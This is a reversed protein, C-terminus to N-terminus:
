MVIFQFKWGTYMALAFALHMSVNILRTRWPNPTNSAFFGLGLGPQMILWPAALTALGFILASLLSPTGGPILKVIFLYLVGYFVGTLYHVCWGITLEHDVEESAAIPSHFFRGRPIHAVWRGIMAWNTAPLSFLRRVALAWIDLGITGIIGILIGTLLM